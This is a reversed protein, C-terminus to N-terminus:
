STLRATRNPRATRRTRASRASGEARAPRACRSTRDFRNSRSDRASRSPWNTRSSRAPRQMYQRVRYPYADARYTDARYVDARRYVDAMVRNVLARYVDAYITNITNKNPRFSTRQRVFAISPAFSLTLLVGVIIAQNQLSLM